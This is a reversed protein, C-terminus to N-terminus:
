GREDPKNKTLAIALLKRNFFYQLFSDADDLLYRVTPYSRSASNQMIEDFTVPFPIKLGLEQSRKFVRGVEKLNSCVIYTHAENKSAMEILKDTKGKGPPLHIVEIM